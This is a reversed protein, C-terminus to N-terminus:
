AKLKQGAASKAGNDADVPTVALVVTDYQGENKSTDMATATM